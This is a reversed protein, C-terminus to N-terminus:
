RGLLRALRIYLSLASPFAALGCCELTLKNGALAWDLQQDAESHETWLSSLLESSAESLEFGKALSPSQVLKGNFLM